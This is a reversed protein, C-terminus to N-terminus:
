KVVGTYWMGRRHMYALHLGEIEGPPLLKQMWDGITALDEQIHYYLFELDTQQDMQVEVHSEIAALNMAFREEAAARCASKTTSLTHAEKDLQQQRWRMLEAANAVMNFYDFKWFHHWNNKQSLPLLRMPEFCIVFTRSM